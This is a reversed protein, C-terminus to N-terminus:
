SFRQKRLFLIFLRVCKNPPYESAPYLHSRNFRCEPSHSSKASLTADYARKFSQPNPSSSRSVNPSPSTSCLPPPISSPLYSDPSCCSLPGISQGCSKAQYCENSSWLTSSSINPALSNPKPKAQCASRPSPSRLRSKYINMGNM